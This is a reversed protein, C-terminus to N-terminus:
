FRFGAVFYMKEKQPNTILAIYLPLNFNESIKIEKTGSINNVM